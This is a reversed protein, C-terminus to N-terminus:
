GLGCRAPGSPTPSCPLPWRANGSPRAPWAGRSPCGTRTTLLYLKLGWYWRSHAACYGYGAWGALEHHAGPGSVESVPQSPLSRYPRHRQGPRDDRPKRVFVAGPDAASQIRSATNVLDGVVMGEGAAELNVAAEGILVETRAKLGPASIEQGLASVAEVLDLAARTAREADDENAVPTGWVAGVVNGIFKDVVGGYREILSRSTDFYRALM